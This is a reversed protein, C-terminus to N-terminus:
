LGSLRDKGNWCTLGELLEPAPTLLKIHWFRGSEEVGKEMLVGWLKRAAEEPEVAEKSKHTEGSKDLGTKVFEPHMLMVVVGKEKLDVAMSKGISNLAAKSARYAYSGGFSNDSISGVRSSM